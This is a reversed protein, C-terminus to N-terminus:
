KRGGKRSVDKKAMAPLDREKFWGRFVGRSTDSRCPIETSPPAIGKSALNWLWGHTVALTLSRFVAKGEMQATKRLNREAEVDKSRYFFFRPHDVV